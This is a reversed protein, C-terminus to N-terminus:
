AKIYHLAKQFKQLETAQYDKKAGILKTAEKLLAELQSLLANLNEKLSEDDNLNEVMAKLDLTSSLTEIKDTDEEILALKFEKIWENIKM